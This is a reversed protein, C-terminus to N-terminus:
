SIYPPRKLFTSHLMDAISDVVPMGSTVGMRRCEAGIQDALDLLPRARRVEGVFEIAAAAYSDARFQREAYEKSAKGMSERELPNLLLRELVQTLQSEAGPEIKIVATDPLERYFGVNTVILPKGYLMEEIASASAGEMAPFRLNIFVDASALYSQLTQHSVEGTLRVVGTLGFDEIAAELQRRYAPACAGVIVYEM